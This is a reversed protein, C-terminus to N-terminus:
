SCQKTFCSGQYMSTSNYSIISQNGNTEIREDIGRYVNKTISSTEYVSIIVLVITYKWEYRIMYLFYDHKRQKSGLGAFLKQIIKRSTNKKKTISNM